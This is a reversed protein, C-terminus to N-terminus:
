FTGIQETAKIFLQELAEGNLTREPADAPLAAHVVEINLLPAACLLTALKRAERGASTEVRQNARFAAIVEARFHAPYARFKTGYEGDVADIMRILGADGAALVRNLFGEAALTTTM